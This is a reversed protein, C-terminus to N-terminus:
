TTSSGRDIMGLNTIQPDMSTTPLIYCPMFVDQVETVAFDTASLVLSELDLLRTRKQSDQSKRFISRSLKMLAKAGSKEVGKLVDPNYRARHSRGYLERIRDLKDLFLEV